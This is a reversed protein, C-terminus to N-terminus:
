QGYDGFQLSHIVEDLAALDPEWDSTSLGDLLEQKAQRYAPYQNQDGSNVQDLEEQPVDAGTDPLADTRVPYFFSVLYQGDDTLGQEVYYIRQNTIVDISQSPQSVSRIASGWPTDLYSRQWGLASGGPTIYRHVEYPLISAGVTSLDPRDNLLSELNDLSTSVSPNDAEDWLQRYEEVPIIYLIPGAYNPNELTAGDFHIEMHEPVGVPGPPMSADYPAAPALHAGWSGALDMMDISVTDPDMPDAGACAVLVLILASIFVLATIQKMM